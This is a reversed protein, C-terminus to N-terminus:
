RLSAWSFCKAARSASAPLAYAAMIGTALVGFLSLAAVLVTNLMYRLLPVERFVEAYNSFQPSAPWWAPPFRLAELPTKLSTSLMWFFPLVMAVGGLVLLIHIPLTRSKM